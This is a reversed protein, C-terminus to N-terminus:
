QRSPTTTVLAAIATRAEAIGQRQTASFLQVSAADLERAVVRRTNIQHNRSLKDAKTLLIHFALKFQAGWGLLQRDFDTLPRRADMVLVVGALTERGGLYAEVLRQWAARVAPPVRAFGYGPLDAFRLNETAFFNIAQTRGPTKSTRALRVRACLANLASSKGANSRGAFAIEPTDPAPFARPAPAACLFRMGTFDTTKFASM